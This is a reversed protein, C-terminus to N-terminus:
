PVEKVDLKDLIRCLLNLRQKQYELSYRALDESHREKRILEMLMEAEQRTLNVHIM